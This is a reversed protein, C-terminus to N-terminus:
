RRARRRHPPAVGAGPRGCGSFARITYKALNCFSGLSVTGAFGDASALLLPALDQSVKALKLADSVGPALSALPLWHDGTGKMGPESQSSGPLALLSALLSRDDFDEPRTAVATPVMAMEAAAGNELEGGGRRPRSVVGVGELSQEEVFKFSMVALFKCFTLFESRSIQGSGDEDFISTFEVCHQLTLAWSYGQFLEEVVPFLEEISSANGDQDIEAFKADSGAAFEASNLDDLVEQPLQPLFEDVAEKDQKVTEIIQSLTAGADAEADAAEGEMAAAAAETAEDFRQQEAPSPAIGELVPVGVPEAVAVPMGVSMSNSSEMFSAAAVLKAYGPFEERSIVGEREAEFLSAFRNCHDSTIAM